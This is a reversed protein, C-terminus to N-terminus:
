KAVYHDKVQFNNWSYAAVNNRWNKKKLIHTLIPVEFGLIDEIATHPEDTIQGNLYGAVVEANTQFTMNGKETPPNFLHNNLIFERYKKTGCINSAAAHWLCFRSNFMNLDIGTNKCKSADFSLNYATLEPNYKGAAKELWRNIASVSAVMRTGNKVMENYADTRRQISAKAWIGDSDKPNYFLPDVTFIGGVMVACQHFVKGTRDVVAAGFDVVKDTITTETDVVLWYQKKAL